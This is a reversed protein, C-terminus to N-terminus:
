EARDTSHNISIGLLRRFQERGRRTVEVLRPQKSNCRLWEAEKWITFLKAGLPGALHPRRETWDLCQRAVGWRGPKLADFDVGQNFFWERAQEGIEYRKGEGRVLYGRQELATAIAVAFEGALHDYCSRALRIARASPSLKPSRLATPVGALHALDEVATAVDPRALRYYRHRGETTVELLKGEVLRALHASAGTAGIGAARALESAPLARGDLLVTLIAARSPEGILSAIQSINPAIFM